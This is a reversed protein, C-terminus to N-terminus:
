FIQDVQNPWSVYDNGFITYRIGNQDGSATFSYICCIWPWKLWGKSPIIGFWYFDEKM